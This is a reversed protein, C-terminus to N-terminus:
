TPIPIDRVIIDTHVVIADYNDGGYPLEVFEYGTPIASKILGSMTWTAQTGFTANLLAPLWLQRQLEVRATDGPAKSLYFNVDVHHTVNYTGGATVVEGTQPVVVVMPFTPASHPVQGYAKRMAQAGTPTAITGSAYRAAMADCIAKFDM